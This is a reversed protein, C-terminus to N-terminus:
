CWRRITIKTIKMNKRGSSIIMDITYTYDDLIRIRKAAARSLARFGSTADEISTNSVKRVVYSGLKQLIKKKFSFYNIESIPRSGIVIDFSQDPRKRNLETFNTVMGSVIESNFFMKKALKYYVSLDSVDPWEGSPQFSGLYIKPCVLIKSLNINYKNIFTQIKNLEIYPDIKHDILAILFIPKNIFLKDINNKHESTDFIYYLFNFNLNYKKDWENLNNIKVGIDPIKYENDEILKIENIEKSNNYSQIQRETFSINIEQFFPSNKTEKYPFPDFLSGSYIKFSADGWNRQDEMEFNIGKFDINILLEDKINYSLKNFKFFPQGPSILDPFNSEQTIDNVKRVKLNTGVHYKLPILLNYGIRNTWFDTKFKGNSKIVISDNNFFIENKTNLKEINGYELDFTFIINEENNLFNTNLIKPKYNNWNKDRVLFSIMKLIQINNIRIDRFFINDKLFSIRNIKFPEFKENFINYM